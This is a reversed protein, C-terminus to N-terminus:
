TSINSSVKLLRDIWSVGQDTREKDVLIVKVKDKDTIKLRERIYEIEQQETKNINNKIVVLTKGNKILFRIIGNIHEDDPNFGFGVSCILDSDRLENYAKMYEQTMQISTMPKTGSQTFLLPVIFHKEKSNLEEKSGIENIYPDYWKDTAGNLYIINRKLKNKILETYNTTVVVSIELKYEDVAKLLEDYYGIKEENINTCQKEIYNKVTILFISIKCFKGWEVKPCYLYHWNSDILTKYDLVFSFIRELLEQAFYLIIGQPNNTDAKKNDLLYELGMLGSGSYNLQLIEGLDDFLDIDDDKKEFPSDNIKRALKESLAGIQLQLIAIIIKGLHKKGNEDLADKKKYIYLLASFYKSKFLNNGDSLEESFKIVQGMNLNNLEKGSLDLITKELNIGKYSIDKEIRESIDDISNVNRIINEKNHEITDKIINEFVTRGFSGINKSIYDDPLFDNAYKTMADINERMTKFEKKSDTTDQRFIDLAFKGGSPMDYGFEAGAGFLFGIKKM